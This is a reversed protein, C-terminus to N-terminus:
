SYSRYNIIVIHAPPFLSTQGATEESLNFGQSVCVYVFFFCVFLPVYKLASAIESRKM